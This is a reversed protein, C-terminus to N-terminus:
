EESKKDSDDRKKRLKFIINNNRIMVVAIGIFVFCVPIVVITLIKVFIRSNHPYLAVQDGVRKGDIWISSESDSLQKVVELFLKRNAGESETDAQENFFVNSTLLFINGANANRACSAVSFPGGIDNEGKKELNDFNDIKSFAKGSTMLIDTSTYGNGKGKPLIGKSTMSLVTINKSSLEQTLETDQIKPILYNMTDYAYRGEEREIVIGQQVDLGYKELFDYLNKTNENLPDLIIVLTGANKLFMELKEIENTSYDVQPANIIMLNCDSPFTQEMSNLVFPLDLVETEYNSLYLMNIFDSNLMEESHGNLLYIKQMEESNSYYIASTLQQEIQLFSESSYKNIQSTTVYDSSDLYIFREGCVVLISSENVESVNSLYQKCFDLDSEVNKYTITINDNLQGYQKLFEQYTANARSRVGLYYITTPKKINSVIEKTDNSLTLTQEATFDFVHTYKLSLFSFTGGILIVAIAFTIMKKVSQRRSELVFWTLLFFVIMLIILHLIDGSRVIGSIMDNFINYVSVSHIFSYVSNSSIFNEVVKGLIVLIYIAYTIVIALISNTTLSAVFMGVSLLVMVSLLCGIYSGILFRINMTGYSSIIVPYLISFLLPILSFIMTALYKAILVTFSSVPSTFLLQDTKYKRETSFLKVMCFPLIMAIVYFVYGIVYYGFQTSHTDLCRACFLVGIVCFILACYVYGFLSTYYSKLERKLIALM